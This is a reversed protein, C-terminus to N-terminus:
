GEVLHQRAVKREIRLRYWLGVLLYQAVLHACLIRVFCTSKSMLCQLFMQVQCAHDCVDLSLIQDLLLDGKIYLKLM